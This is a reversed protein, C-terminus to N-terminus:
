GVANELARRAAELAESLGEVRPGGGQAMQASGGGKGEVSQLSPRLLAAMDVSLEASRGFVLHARQDAVCGLCAVRGSEKTLYIGLLRLEGPTVDAIQQVIIKSGGVLPAEGALRHAKQQLLEERLSQLSKRLATKEEALKTAAEVLGQESAAFIQSLARLKEISARYDGLARDGCVFEVRTGKKFREAGRILIPGVESTNRPHTGCCAQRDFGEVEVIRLIGEVEPAKRLNLRAAEESKVFYSRIPTAERVARNAEHEAASLTEEALPAADLDITSTASGLHFSLTQANAEKLFAASLIHQGSHQQMHDRRREGDVVCSVRDNDPMRALVHLVEEGQEEVRLVPIGGVTGLDYPQGGSEPYFYTEELVVAPGHPTEERRVIRGEFSLRYPDNLYLKRTM